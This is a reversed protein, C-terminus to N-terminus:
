DFFGLRHFYKSKGGEVWDFQLKREQLFLKDPIDTNAVFGCVLLLEQAPRSLRAFSVEWTTFVNRNLNGTREDSLWGPGGSKAVKGFEGDLLNLYHQFSTQMHSIYSGAQTLALPLFGLKVAVQKAARHETHCILRHEGRYTKQYGGEGELVDKGVSKTLVAMSAQEDIEEIAVTKGLSRLNSKRSTIIVNGVDCTPLLLHIDVADVDDYNDLILLWGENQKTALWSKVAGTLRAEAASDSSIQGKTNLVGGLGLMLAIDEYSHRQKAYSDIIHEAVVRASRSLSVASTVDVWLVATYSDSYRFSYELAISSKGMGGLGHLVVVKHTPLRVEGDSSTSGKLTSHITCIIDERGSFMHNRAFPLQPALTFDPSISQIGTEPAHLGRLLELPISYPLGRVGVALLTRNLTENYEKLQGILREFKDRDVFAWRLKKM